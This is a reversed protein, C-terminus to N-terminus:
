AVEAPLGAWIEDNDIPRPLLAQEIMAQVALDVSPQVAAMDGGGLLRVLEALWEPHARAIEGRMVAIHNVPVFGHLQEFRRGADAPDAFVPRLWPAAPVDSGVIVADLEGQQLLEMMDAGAPAREVWPPDVYEPVHAPEFTTWHMDSPHLGQSEALIARLWMGTTQSYARVGIRRGRLADPSYPADTRCLLAGHQHRAAMVVPLLVVDHGYTRAQLASALAMESADYAAARLMPAFARSIPSVETIAIDFLASHAGRLASTGKQGFAVHLTRDAM